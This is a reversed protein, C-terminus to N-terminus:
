TPTHLTRFIWCLAADAQAQPLAAERPTRVPQRYLVVSREVVTVVLEAVVRLQQHLEFISVQLVDALPVRQAVLAM